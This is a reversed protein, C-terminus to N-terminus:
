KGRVITCYKAYVGLVSMVQEDVSLIQNIKGSRRATEISADGTAVLGLVSTACAEGVLNAGANSTASHGSKLDTYWVGMLPARLATACGSLPLATLSLLLCLTKVRFFQTM